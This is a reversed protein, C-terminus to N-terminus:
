KKKLIYFVSTPRLKQFVSEPHYKNNWSFFTSCIKDALVLSKSNYIKINLINGLIQMLPFVCKNESIIELKNDRIIKRFIDLPIGRERKTLNPRKKRWDGMSVIPERLLILGDKKTCRYTEEILRSVNPIHHLVGFSTVLDFYEDPFPLDGSNTPQIYKIPISFDSNNFKDSSELITLDKIKKIIPLFEDGYASGLGLVKSFNLNKLKSFGYFKNLEHYAYIYNKKDKSGLEAYAEKEDKHWAELDQPSFDDGYLKEGKFFIEFENM